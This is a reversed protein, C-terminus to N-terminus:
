CLNQRCPVLKFDGLNPITIKKATIDQITLEPVPQVKDTQKNYLGGGQILGSISPTATPSLIMSPTGTPVLAPTETATATASPAPVTNPALVWGGVYDQGNIIQESRYLGAEENLARRASPLVDAIFPFLMGNQLTVIGIATSQTLTADVKGEDPKSAVATVKNDQLPGKFWQAFTVPHDRSGDTVFAM